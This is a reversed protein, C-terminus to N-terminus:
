RDTAVVYAVSLRAATGTSALSKPAVIGVTHIGAATIAGITGIELTCRFGTAGRMCAFRRM